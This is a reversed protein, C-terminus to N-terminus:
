TQPPVAIFTFLPRVRPHKSRPKLELDWRWAHIGQRPYSKMTSAQVNSLVPVWPGQGIRRNLTNQSLEYTVAQSDALLRLTSVGETKEIQISTAARIDARWREGVQLAAAIDAASRRLTLSSQICKYMAAYGIGLLLVVVSIYVLAETLLYGSRSSTKM